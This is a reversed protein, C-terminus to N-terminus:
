EGKKKDLQEKALKLLEERQKIYTRGKLDGKEKSMWFWSGSEKRMRKYYQQKEKYDKFEM